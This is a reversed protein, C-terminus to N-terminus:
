LVMGQFTRDGFVFLFHSYDKKRRFKRKWCLEGTESSEAPATERRFQGNKFNIQLEIIQFPLEAPRAGILAIGGNETASFLIEESYKKNKRFRFRQFLEAGQTTNLGGKLTKEGDTAPNLNKIRLLLQNIRQYLFADGLTEMEHQLARRLFKGAASAKGFETNQKGAQIRAASKAGKKKKQVRRVVPKGNLTYFVYDGVKGSIGLFSDFSGM